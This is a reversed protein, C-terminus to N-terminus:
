FDIELSIHQLSACTYFVNVKTKSVSKLGQRVASHAESRQCVRMLQIFFTPQGQGERKAFAICRCM